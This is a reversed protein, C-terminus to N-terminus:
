FYFINKKIQLFNKLFNNMLHLNTHKISFFIISFFTSSENLM